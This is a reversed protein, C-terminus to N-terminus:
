RGQEPRTAEKAGDDCPQNFGNMRATSAPAQHNSIKVKLFPRLYTYYLMNNYVNINFILGLRKKSIVNYYTYTM